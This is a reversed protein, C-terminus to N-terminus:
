SSLPRKSTCKPSETSILASRDFRISTVLCPPTKNMSSAQCNSGCFDFAPRWIRSKSHSAISASLPLSTTTNLPSSSDNSRSSKSSGLDGPRADRKRRVKLNGSKVSASSSSIIRFSRDVFFDLNWTPSRLYRRMAAFRRPRCRPVCPKPFARATSFKSSVVKSRCVARMKFARRAPKGSGSRKSTVRSSRNPTRSRRRSVTSFDSAQCSSCEIYPRCRTLSDTAWNTVITSVFM